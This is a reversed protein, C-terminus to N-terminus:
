LAAEWLRRVCAPCDDLAVDERCGEGRPEVEVLGSAAKKGV